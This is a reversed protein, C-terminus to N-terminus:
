RKRRQAHCLWLLFPRGESANKREDREDVDIFKALPSPPPSANELDRHDDRHHHSRTIHHCAFPLGLLRAYRGITLLLLKNERGRPDNGADGDVRVLSSPPLQPQSPTTTPSYLLPYTHLLKVCLDPRRVIQLSEEHSNSVPSLILFSARPVRRKLLGNFIHSGVATRRPKRTDLKIKSIARSEGFRFLLPFVDAASSYRFFFFFSVSGM